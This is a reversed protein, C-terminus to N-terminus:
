AACATANSASWALAASSGSAITSPSASLAVTPAPPTVSVTKSQTASGGAGTCTLSYTANAKVTGTSQSGSTAKSGTWAGSATCSTANSSSWTLTSSAGSAITSPSASLSVTATPTSAVTVTASQVADGARGTCTLTYTANATLAGTSQSGSLTKAGSWAGSATCATANLRSVLDPLRCQRPHDLEPSATLSVTPAIARVSVMATQAASGGTGTCSLTYTANATLAGTSQSGSLAKSGSWAGSAHLGDRPRVVVHADCERRQRIASPGVSLSVTPLPAKVSVTTSQAASGGPGSCTLTYTASNTLAGDAPLRQGGQQGVLRRLRYLGDCQRLVMHPGLQGRLRDHETDRSVDGHAVALEGFGDFVAHRQRRLGRLHAYLDLQVKVAGTSQSGSVGKSGSWAGSATCSTANESSWTLTSSGGPSLSSPSAHITVAPSLASM